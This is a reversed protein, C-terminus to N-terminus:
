AFQGIIRCPTACSRNAKAESRVWSLELVRGIAELLRDFDMPDGVVAQYRETAPVGDSLAIAPIPCGAASFGAPWSAPRSILVLHPKRGCAAAATRSDAADLADFGLFSLLARLIRRRNPKDDVILIRKRAGYYATITGLTSTAAPTNMTGIHPSDDDFGDVLGDALTDALATALGDFRVPPNRAASCGTTSRFVDPGM